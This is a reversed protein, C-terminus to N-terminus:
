WASSNYIVFCVDAIFFNAFEKSIGAGASFLAIDMGRGGNRTLLEVAVNRGNYMLKKGVSRESALFRINKVPFNRNELMKIMELGVVGTAGVIVIKYKKM